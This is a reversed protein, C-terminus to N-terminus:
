VDHCQTSGWGRILRNHLLVEDQLMEPEETGTTNPKLSGRFPSTLGRMRSIPRLLLLGGDLLHNEMLHRGVLGQEQLAGVLDASLVHGAAGEDAELDTVEGALDVEEVGGEVVLHDEPAGSRQDEDDVRLDAWV